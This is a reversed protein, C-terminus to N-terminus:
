DSVERNVHIDLKKVRHWLSRESIGLLRAAQVQVGDTEKLAAVILRRETSAMWHDLGEDMVDTLEGGHRRAEGASEVVKDPLDRLEIVMRRASLLSREVANRLERVNGPWDYRSLVAM